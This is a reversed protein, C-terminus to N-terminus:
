IIGTLWFVAFCGGFTALTIMGALLLAKVREKESM